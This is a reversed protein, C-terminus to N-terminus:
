ENLMKCFSVGALGVTRQYDPDVTCPPYSFSSMCSSQVKAYGGFALVDSVHFPDGQNSKDSNGFPQM